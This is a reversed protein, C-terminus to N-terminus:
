IRTRSKRSKKQSLAQLLANKWSDEDEVKIVPAAFNAPESNAGEM